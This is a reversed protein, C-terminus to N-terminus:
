MQPLELGKLNSASLIDWAANQHDKVAEVFCYWDTKKYNRRDAWSYVDALPDWRALTFDSRDRLGRVEEKLAEDLWKDDDYEPLERDGYGAQGSLQRYRAIREKVNANRQDREGIADGLESMLENTKENLGAKSITKDTFKELKHLMHRAADLFIVKNERREELLRQDRWILGPWDPNHQADAHGIDPTVKGLPSAMANFEDYYGVFNQHAWSDAYCHCAVGIRFLNETSIAADIIKNANESNPTTNLWHMKGDKRFAIKSMPDGPIFHFLPYIRFLKSKPKLINMTQSIYNRYASAKGKDIELIMDNDDVYQSTYAIKFADDSGFGAKAAVLYTMYYHFEVDM